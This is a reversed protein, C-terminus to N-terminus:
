KKGEIIDIVEVIDSHESSEVYFVRNPHTTGVVVMGQKASVETVNSPNVWTLSAIHALTDVLSQVEFVTTRLIAGSGMYVDMAGKARDAVNIGLIHDPNVWHAGGINVLDM